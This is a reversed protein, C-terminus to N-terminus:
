WWRMGNMCTREKTEVVSNYKYLAQSWNSFFGGFFFFVGVGALSKHRTRSSSGKGGVGRWGRILFLGESLNCILWWRDTEGGIRIKDRERRGGGRHTHPNSLLRSMYYIFYIIKWYFRCTLLTELGGGGGRDRLCVSRDFHSSINTTYLRLTGGYSIREIGWLPCNRRKSFSGLWWVLNM